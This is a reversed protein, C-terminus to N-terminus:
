PVTLRAPGQLQSKSGPFRAVVIFHFQKRVTIPVTLSSTAVAHFEKTQLRHERFTGYILSKVDESESDWRNNQKSGCHQWWLVLCAFFMINLRTLVEM